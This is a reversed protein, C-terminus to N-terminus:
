CVWHYFRDFWSSRAQGSFDKSKFIAAQDGMVLKTLVQQNVDNGTALVVSVVKAGRMASVAEDLNRTDTVGDTIFVFLVEAYRRTKRATGKGMINDIAYFIAPGVNSSSDFYTLNAIGDMIVALDHTLPFAVANENEKGFQLLAMRAGARDTKTRAMVMREAFESVFEKVHRFNESGLRESGDLLFVLDVPRQVCPAVDPESECPLNPCVIQPDPCLVTEMKDIFNEAVLETYLRFTQVQDKRDCAISGLTEDDEAKKFIDGVGIAHVVVQDDNCLYTLLPDEDRPDYRGDTVVVVSVKARARKSDKILHDYAFKLASPTFTGGAIWQLNKVATKFASLSNISPDNLHIAEFTGNHSYQVVGVRTGTQSAPDSAMSGLRSITNIVFNKELTFNTLGISESSDIIFVIDLAGCHKECDCCGCTERIYTMVACDTLGPDGQPGEGGDPGPEGSPGRNGPEGPQGPDGPLGLTGKDGPEGKAGCEGRGGRLGKKGPTGPEGTPGRPGPYSFGRRGRDGKPGPDGPDGRPGPDGPEGKSGIEGPGGPEGSHGRPGPLGPDGKSGKLGDEGSRGRDGFSGREGKEGKRGESGQAGKKGANGRRGPYGKPGPGGLSGKDGKRGPPGPNGPNGTEGKVGINGESGPPGPRGPLGPAGREGNDGPPGNDGVDGHFGDPGKDGPDGKCGPAGIRGMRGKQGDTGNRGPEGAVGKSGTTGIDGKDGKFGITGKPGPAGIPGEIGPDGPNGRQGKPGIQGRDGKVGKQGPSGKRGPIGPVESCKPKYCKLYAQYKMVDLIRKISETVIRGGSGIDVALYEDRYLEVPSSAIEKMGIEDIKRSAAVSFTLIGQERAKDSMAKMGGCPSGTVHGDTIFVSFLVDRMGTRYQTLQQIKNKIACDTYTGKGKYVIQDVNRIFTDKNTFQSFVHQDQSFNQGGVSWKIRIQGRYEVDNLREAFAKVFEKVRNVLEGPPAEQLAITESTDITFFVKVPCDVIGTICDTIAPETPAPKDGAGPIPRPGRPEVGQPTAAPLMCLFIVGWIMAM